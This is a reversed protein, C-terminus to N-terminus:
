ETVTVEPPQEELADDGFTTTTLGTGATGVIEALPGKVNQSPPDTVNVDEEAFSLKHDSPEVDCDM